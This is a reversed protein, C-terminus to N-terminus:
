RRVKKSADERLEQVEEGRTRIPATFGFERLLDRVGDYADGKDLGVGPPREATLATSNLM